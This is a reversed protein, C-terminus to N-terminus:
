INEDEKENKKFLHYGIQKNRMKYALKIMEDNTKNNDDFISIQMRNPFYEDLLRKDLDCQSQLKGDPLIHIANIGKLSFARAVMIARHCDIPDKEACMLAINNGKKLGLIVNDLGKNFLDTKIVKEFDLCGDESYLCIDKPRAGFYRGMDYYNISINSLEKKLVNKNYSDVYKSYPVSRVDVVCNIENLNLLYAFYDFKHQSHGITYLRGM